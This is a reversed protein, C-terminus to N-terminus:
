QLRLSYTVKEFQVPRRSDYGTKDFHWHNVRITDQQPPTVPSFQV